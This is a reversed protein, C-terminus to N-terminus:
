REAPRDLLGGREALLAAHVRTAVGLKRLIVSVHDKVTGVALHLEKAIEINTQGEALCRLVDTERQSLESLLARTRRERRPGALARGASPALLIGGAVLSRVFTALADPDTDKVLYGRAGLQLAQDVYPATDFTTLIAVIARSRRRQLARLVSFGDIQPMEIDLLVVDPDTRDILAVAAVGDATGVVDIDEAASLIMALGRQVLIDDDIVVVTTV